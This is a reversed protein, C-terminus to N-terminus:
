DSDFGASSNWSSAIFVWAGDDQRQLVEMSDTYKTKGDSEWSARSRQYALGGSVEITLAEGTLTSDPGINNIHQKIQERGEVPPKNPPMFVANESCMAACRDGDGEKMAEEFAANLAHIEEIDSM